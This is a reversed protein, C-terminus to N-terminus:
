CSSIVSRLSALVQGINSFETSPRSQEFIKPVWHTATLSARSSQLHANKEKVGTELEEAEAWREQGRYILALDGMSILTDPHEEGLVRKRTEMVRMQIGEAEKLREQDRYIWALDGM